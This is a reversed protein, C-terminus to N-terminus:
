LNIEDLVWRLTKIIMKTSVKETINISPDFLNLELQKIKEKIQKKTKM